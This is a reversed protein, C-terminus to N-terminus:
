TVSVYRSQERELSEKLKGIQIQLASITNQLDFISTKEENLQTSLETSRTREADLSTRLDDQLIKEQQIKFELLQVLFFTSHFFFNKKLKVRYWVVFKKSQDLNFSNASLLVFTVSCSFNTKPLTLLM